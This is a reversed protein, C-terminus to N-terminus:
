RNVIKEGSRKHRRLMGKEAKKDIKTGTRGKNTREREIQNKVREEQKEAEKEERKEQEM